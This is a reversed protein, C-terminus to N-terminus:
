VWMISRIRSRTPRQTLTEMTAPQPATLEDGVGVTAVDGVGVTVVDGVAVVDDGEGLGEAETAAPTRDIAHDVGVVPGSIRLTAYPTTCRGLAPNTASPVCSVKRLM